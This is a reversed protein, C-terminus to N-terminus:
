AILRMASDIMTRTAKMMTINADYARAAEIANIMEEMVSVNSYEVMGKNPGS